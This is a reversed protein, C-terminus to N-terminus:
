RPLPGGKYCWAFAAQDRLIERGVATISAAIADTMGDDKAAGVKGKRIMAGRNLVQVDAVTGVEFKEQHAKMWPFSTCELITSWQETSPEFGLFEAVKRVSGEHDGKM